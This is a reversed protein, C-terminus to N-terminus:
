HLPKRALVFSEVAYRMELKSSNPIASAVLLAFKHRLEGFSRVKRANRFMSRIPNVSEEHSLWANFTHRFLYNRRSSLHGSHIIILGNNQLNNALYESTFGASFYHPYSHVFNSAPASLWLYGSPRMLKTINLFFAEHNWVHEIVQNCIVLDHQAQITSENTCLVNLDLFVEEGEIGYTTLLIDDLMSLEPDKSGGVLAVSTIRSDILNLAKSFEVVLQDRVAQGIQTL